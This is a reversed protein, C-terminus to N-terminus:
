NQIKLLGTFRDAARADIISHSNEKLFSLVQNMDTVLHQNFTFEFEEETRNNRPRWAPNGTEIPFGEAKWKAFTGDLISVNNIGFVKFMWYARCAGM